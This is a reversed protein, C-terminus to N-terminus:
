EGIAQHYNFGMTKELDKAKIPDEPGQSLQIDAQYKNDAQM